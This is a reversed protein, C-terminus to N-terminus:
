KSTCDDRMPLALTVGADTGAVTLTSTDAVFDRQTKREAVLQRALDPLATGAIM